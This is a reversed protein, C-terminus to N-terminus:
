RHDGHLIEAVPSSQYRGGIAADEILNREISRVLESPSMVIDVIVGVRGIVDGDPGAAGGNASRYRMSMSSNSRTASKSLASRTSNISPNMTSLPAM